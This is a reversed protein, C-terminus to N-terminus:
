VYVGMQNQTEIKDYIQKLLANRKKDLDIGLKVGTTGVFGGIRSLSDGRFMSKKTLEAIGSSQADKIKNEYISLADRTARKREEETLSKGKVKELDYLKKKVLYEKESMQLKKKNWTAEESLLDLMNKFNEIKLKDAKREKETRTIDDKKQKIEGKLAREEDILAKAEKLAKLYDKSHKEVGASILKKSVKSLAEYNDRVDTGYKAETRLLAVDKEKASIISDIDEKRKKIADERIKINLKEADNKAKIAKIEKNRIDLSKLQSKIFERIFEVSKVRVMLMAEEYIKREGDSKATSHRYELEPQVGQHLANVEKLSGIVRGLNTDFRTYTNILEEGFVPLSKMGLLTTDILSLSDEGLAVLPKTIASGMEAGANKIKASLADWRAGEQEFYKKSAENMAGTATAVDYLDQKAEKAKSGVLAMAGTIGRTNEILKSFVKNDRGVEQYLGQMIDQLSLGAISAQNYSKAVNNLRDSLEASPKLLKTLIARIYTSASETSAGQRTMTALSALTSEYSIGLKAALPLFKGVQGGLEEFHTKGKKITMFYKDSISEADSVSMNYANIVTTLADSSTRVTSVGALSARTAIDMFDAVRSLEIQASIAEYTGDTVDTLSKGYKSSLTILSGGLKDINASTTDAITAIEGMAKSFKLGLSISESFASQLGQLVQFGAYMFAGRGFSSAMSVGFRKASRKLDNLKAKMATTDADFTTVLRNKYSAM